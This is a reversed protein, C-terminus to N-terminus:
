GKEDVDRWSAEELPVTGWGPPNWADDTESGSLEDYLYMTHRGGKDVVWIRGKPDAYARLGGKIATEVAPNRATGAKKDFDLRLVCLFLMDQDNGSAIVVEKTGDKDFDHCSLQHRFGADEGTTPWHRRRLLGDLSFSGQGATWGSVYVGPGVHRDGVDLVFKATHEGDMAVTMEERELTGVGDQSVMISEQGEAHFLPTRVGPAPPPWLSYGQMLKKELMRELRVLLDQEM